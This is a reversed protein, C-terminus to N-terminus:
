MVEIQLVESGALFLFGNDLGNLKVNKTCLPLLVNYAYCVFCTLPLVMVTGKAVDGGTVVQLVVEGAWANVNRM